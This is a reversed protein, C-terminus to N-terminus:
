RAAATRRARSPPAAPRSARPRVSSLRQSATETAAPGHGRRSVRRSSGAHVTQLGPQLGSGLRLRRPRRGALSPHGRRLPSRVPAGPRRAEARLFRVILDLWEVPRGQSGRVHLVPPLGTLISAALKLDFGFRGCVLETRAGGGGYTMPTLPGERQGGIAVKIPVAKSDPSSLLRHGRGHPLLM